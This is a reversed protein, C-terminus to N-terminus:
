NGEALKLVRIKDNDLRTAGITFTAGMRWLNMKNKDQYFFSNFDEWVGMAVADKTFVPCLRYKTGGEEVLPLKNTIVMNKIGAFPKLVGKDLVTQGYTDSIYEADNLLKEAQAPSLFLAVPEMQPDVDKELFSTVTSKLIDATIGTKSEDKIYCAEPLEEVTEHEEGVYNKKFIGDLVVDDKRRMFAANAADYYSSRPDQLMKMQDISDFATGWDFTRPMFWRREHDMEILPTDRYRGNSEKAETKGIFEAAVAGKGVIGSQITVYPAFKSDKQQAVLNLNTNFQESYFTEINGM